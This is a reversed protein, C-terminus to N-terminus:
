ETTEKAKSKNRIVFAGYTFAGIGIFLSGMAFFLPYNLGYRGEKYNYSYCLGVAMTLIESPQLRDFNTDIVALEMDRAGVTDHMVRVIRGEPSLFVYANPHYFMRDQPSWFFKYGIRSTFPKIDEPNKFTAFTWNEAVKGTLGLKMRFHSATESTDNADFSISLVEVDEGLAIRGLAVTEELLGALAASFAPCAGDCTYYSLALIRSRAPLGGLTFERGREDLLVVDRDMKVGLFDSEDMRLIDPDIDSVTPTYAAMAPVGVCLWCSLAAAAAMGTVGHLRAM